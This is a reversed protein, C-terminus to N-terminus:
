KRKQVALGALVMMVATVLAGVPLGTEELPITAAEVQVIEENEGGAAGGNDDPDGGAANCSNVFRVIVSGINNILDPDYTSTTLTPLIEFDGEQLVRVSVWLFPDGVPVDGLDWTITRTAPDYSFTGYDVTANLYEMGDPIIWKLVTNGATDPGKNGVKFTVQAIDSLGLCHSPATVDVYLGSQAPVCINASANNNALCPDYESGTINATNNICTNSVNVKAIINLVAQYWADLNGITWIGTVADYTGQTATYSVFELGAPLLDNVKVGSANNPGNNKATITYNVTDMYNPQTNNVTKNVELDAACPVCISASAQNNALCPDYQCGTICATNTISTCSASIKTVINLVADCWSDLDGICWIGTCPDYTGKTATYSVFELGAPLSDNVKVGTACNPGNNKATVTWNVTDKYNPTSNNVTKCVELDAAKPVCFTTNAKAEYKWESVWRHHKGDWNKDERELKATNTICTDSGIVKALINLTASGHPNLSGINWIGTAANYTGKTATYSVFELGSPLTDNVRFNATSHHDNRATITFNVTDKYNITDSCGNLNTVNKTIKDCDTTSNTIDSGTAAATGSIALIFVFALIILMIKKQMPNWM